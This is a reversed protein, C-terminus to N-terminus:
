KKRAVRILSVRLTGGNEFSLLTRLSNEYTSARLQLYLSKRQRYNGTNPLKQWMCGLFPVSHCCQSPNFKGGQEFLPAHALLLQGLCCTECRRRHLRYMFPSRSGLAWVTTASASIRPTFVESIMPVESSCSISVAIRKITRLMSLSVSAWRASSM